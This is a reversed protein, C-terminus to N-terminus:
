RIVCNELLTYWNANPSLDYAQEGINYAAKTVVYKRKAISCDAGSLMSFVLSAEYRGIQFCTRIDLVTRRENYDNDHYIQQLDYCKGNCEVAFSYYNEINLHCLFIKWLILAKTDKNDNDVYFLAEEYQRIADDYNEKQYHVDGRDLHIKLNKLHNEPANRIVYSKVLTDLEERTIYKSHQERTESYLQSVMDYIQNLQQTSMSSANTKGIREDFYSRSIHTVGMKLCDYILSSLLSELIAM